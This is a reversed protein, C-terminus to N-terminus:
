PKVLSWSDPLAHGAPRRAAQGTRARQRSRPGPQMSRHLWLPLLRTPRASITAPSRRIAARLIGSAREAARTRDPSSRRTTARPGPRGWDAQFHPIM